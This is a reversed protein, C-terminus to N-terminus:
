HTCIVQVTFLRAHQAIETGEHKAGLSATNYPVQNADLFLRLIEPKIAFNVNQAIDGTINALGAVNLKSVVVGVIGGSKDVLPGGSNGPQIPASIQLLTPDNGIGALSNVQGSTVILDSSLLGPLPYGALMVDEGLVAVQRIPVTIQLGKPISLLALDDRQTSALVTALTEFTRQRILIKSCNDVVHSNTVITNPSVVFGSGSKDSHNNKQAISGSKPTSVLDDFKTEFLATQTKQLADEMAREGALAHGKTYESFQAQGKGILRPSAILKGSADRINSTLDVTFDTPPLYIQSYSKSNTVITPSIVYKIGENRLTTENVPYNLKSVSEFVNSLMKQYATEIDKYPSYRISDGGGAPTVM